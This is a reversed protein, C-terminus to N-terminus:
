IYTYNTVGTTRLQVCVQTAILALGDLLAFVLTHLYVLEM